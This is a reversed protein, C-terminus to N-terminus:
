SRRVPRRPCHAIRRAREPSTRVAFFQCAQVAPTSCLPRAKRGAGKDQSTSPKNLSIAVTDTETEPGGAGFTATAIDPKNDANYRGDTIGLPGDGTDFRDPGVFTGDGNGTLVGFNGRNM